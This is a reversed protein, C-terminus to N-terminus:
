KKNVGYRLNDFFREILRRDKSVIDATGKIEFQFDLKSGYNTTLGEPLAVEVMYTDVNNDNSVKVLNTTLSISSVKGTLFGYEEYPYNNLKIIVRQGIKVKGAGQAPLQVQGVINNKDPILTFVSEGIQVFQNNNWFRTFEVTGNLASKFVYHQEWDKINDKLEDYASLMDLHMQKEKESKQVHLQELKSKNDDIEQVTKNIEGQVNQYSEKSTLFGIESRDADDEATAKESLLISDRDAIKKALGMNSERINKLKQLSSHLKTQEGIQTSLGAEQKEFINDIQYYYLQQLANLFTYYKVNIEGLSANVPFEPFAKIMSESNIDYRSLLKHIDQVESTNASNQIVAIYDGEKVRTASRNVILKIKGSSNAVLKVPSYKTNIIISGTVTDPYKILWGFIFAFTTIAIIIVTTWAGFSTPMKDIIDEVEESRREFNKSTNDM